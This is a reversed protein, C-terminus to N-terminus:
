LFLSECTNYIELGKLSNILVAKSDRNIYDTLELSGLPENTGLCLPKPLKKQFSVPLVKRGARGHDMALAQTFYPNNKIETWPM